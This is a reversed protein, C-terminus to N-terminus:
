STGKQDATTLANELAWCLQPFTRPALGTHHLPPTVPFLDSIDDVAWGAGQTAMWVLSTRSLEHTTAAAFASAVIEQRTFGQATAWARFEPGNLGSSTRPRDLPSGGGCTMRHSTTSDATDIM